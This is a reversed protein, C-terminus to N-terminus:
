QLFHFGDEVSSLTIREKPGIPNRSGTLQTTCMLVTAGLISAIVMKLKDDFNSLLRGTIDDTMKGNM